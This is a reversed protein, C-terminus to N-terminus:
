KQVAPGLVVDILYESVCSDDDWPCSGVATCLSLINEPEVPVVTTSYPLQAKKKRSDPNVIKLQLGDISQLDIPCILVYYDEAFWFSPSKDRADVDAKNKSKSAKNQYFLREDGQRQIAPNLNSDCLTIHLGKVPGSYENTVKCMIIAAHDWQCHQASVFNCALLGILLFLISKM